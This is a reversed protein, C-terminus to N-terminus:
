AQVVRVCNKGAEKAAYVGKDALILLEELRKMNDTLSAVGVSISGIWVGEGTKIRLEAIKNQMKNAVTLAGQQDANPCLIFFEDGGLRCVIDDTRVSHRLAKSLESLVLDGADHGYTDNVQKFYDADIMMCSLPKNNAKAENWLLTLQQMAHRRNPLNTLVDTLSLEEFHKNAEILAATRSAVKEELSQNLLVLEQNRKSVQKFLGNLAALLPETSSNEGTEFQEYADSASVGSQISQIQRAMDQDTGLIHYGLWHILFELLDQASQPNSPSLFAHLQIVEQLFQQHIAKHDNLSRQDLGSEAMTKEEDSFHYQTYDVLEQYTTEIDEYVLENEALHSSFINIIDVLQHHQDDVESIGTIFHRGWKFSQM